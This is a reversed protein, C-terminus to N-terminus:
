NLTFYMNQMTGTADPIECHFTGTPSTVGERRNLRVVQDGRNRYFNDGHIKIPVQTGNPYYFHGLRNPPTRCCAALNTKCLLAGPGDGVDSVTAASGNHYVKGNLEFYVGIHM